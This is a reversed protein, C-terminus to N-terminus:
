RRRHAAAVLAVLIAEGGRVLDDLKPRRRRSRGVPIRGRLQPVHVLATIEAGRELARWCLYNCVYRGADRSLYAFAGRSRAASVLHRAHPGFPLAAPGGAVITAPYGSSRAADPFLASVTNRARTEISLNRRRAALGFMLVADPAYRALLEPLERDVAAYSTPFVHGILTVDALAPRRRRVLKAVLVGTPNRRAGPFPGFGTVLVTLARDTRM